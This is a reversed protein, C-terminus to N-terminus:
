SCPKLLAQYARSATMARFPLHLTTLSFTNSLVPVFQVPISSPPQTKEWTRGSLSILQTDNPLNSVRELGMEMKELALLHDTGKCATDTLQLLPNDTFPKFYHYLWGPTAMPPRPTRGAQPLQLLEQPKDQPAPAPESTM